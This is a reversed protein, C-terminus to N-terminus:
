DTFVSGVGGTEEWHKLVAGCESIIVDEREKRWDLRFCTLNDGAHTETLSGERYWWNM